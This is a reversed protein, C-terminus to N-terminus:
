NNDLGQKSVRTADLSQITFQASPIDGNVSKWKINLFVERTGGNDTMKSEIPVWDGSVEKKWKTHTSNVIAANEWPQSISRSRVEMHVPVFGRNSDVWCTRKLEATTGTKIIWFIEYVGASDSIGGFTVLKDDSLLAFLKECSGSTELETPSLLGVAHIDFPRNREYRGAAIPDGFVAHEGSNFTYIGDQNALYARYRGPERRSFHLNSGDFICEIRFQEKESVVGNVKDKELSTGEIVAEGSHLKGITSRMERICDDTQALEEGPM